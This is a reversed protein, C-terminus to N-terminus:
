NNFTDVIAQLAEGRGPEAFQWNAFTIKTVAAQSSSIPVVTLALVAASTFISILRSPRSM